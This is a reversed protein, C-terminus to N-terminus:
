RDYESGGSSIHAAAADLAADLAGKPDLGRRDAGIHHAALVDGAGTTGKVAVAPPTATVMGGADALAVAEAGDTVLARALGHELLATAAAITDPCPRGLARETELRTLYVTVDPRGAFLDLPLPKGNSAPLVALRAGTLSPHGVLAKLTAPALNTDIVVDGDVESAGVPGLISCGATELARCDAVAAVVAGSPAEITVYADTPASGRAVSGIDVGRKAALRLLTDGPEDRGTYALLVPREGLEALALAVNLAVGGPRRIVQGPVDDGCTPSQHARAIVDWHAAGICILDPPTTM